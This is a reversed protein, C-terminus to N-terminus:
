MQALWREAERLCEDFEGIHLRGQPISALFRRGYSRTLLRNDLVFIVGQDTTSRVLRGIGQKFGLIAEPIYYDGGGDGDREAARECRASVIPDTPVAFPLKVIVVCRLARGPVDVGEWFSKLGYLVVNNRERLQELLWSRPGSVYQCLPVLGLDALRERTAEFVREMQHRATFLVLQGGGVVRAIALLSDILAEGRGEEGRTPVDHPVCLLLQDPYSFPSPVICERVNFKEGELGLHRRMYSFGGEVTLTASTMIVAEHREYVARQLAPGVEIPAACLRWHEGWSRRATEAWCVYDTGPENGEVATLAQLLEEAAVRAGAAELALNAASSGREAGEALLESIEALADVAVSLAHRLTTTAETVAHWYATAYVEESLRLRARGAEAEPDLAVCLNIVADRLQEEAAELAANAAVLRLRPTRVASSLSVGAGALYADLDSLLGHRRGDAGLARRLDRVSFSSIEYGLQDTAVAELNHAEDFIIRTSPPLVDFRTDALTLAHNSVIVDANRAIARAVRMPCVQAHECGPGLCTARESRVREILRDLGRFIRPAESPVMDLDCSESQALWSILYAAARREERLLSAQQERVATVFRRLCVYNRRGKLLAAEFELDMARRLLPLDREILQEQLNKTNTSVIVPEAHARAWLIAPVLYALSKGVGTGAEVMLVGGAEIVEGVVGAMEIQGPRHEYPSLIRAVPGDPALLEVAAAAPSLDLEIRERQRPPPAKPRDAILMDLAAAELPPLELEEWGLWDFMPEGATLEAMLALAPAPLTTLRQRLARVIRRCLEAGLAPDAVARHAEDDDALALTRAVGTLSYDRLTPLVLLTGALVDRLRHRVDEATQEAVSRALLALFLRADYIFIREADLSPLLEHMLRDIEHPRATGPWMVAHECAGTVHIRTGAGDSCLHLWASRQPHTSMDPSSM